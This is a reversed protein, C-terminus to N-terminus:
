KFKENVLQKYLERAIPVLAKLRFLPDMDGGEVRVKGILLQSILDVGGSWFRHALEWNMIVSVDAKLEEGDVLGTLNSDAGNLWLKMTIDPQRLKLAIVKESGSFGQTGEPTAILRSILEAHLEIIEHPDTTPLDTM